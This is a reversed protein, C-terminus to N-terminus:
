TNLDEDEDGMDGKEPDVGVDINSDDSSLKIHIINMANRKVSVTQTGLDQVIGVSRTWVVSVKVQEQYDSDAYKWANEIDYLSFMRPETEMNATIGTENIFTNYSNSCTVKASGDTIGTLKLKIGLSVRKLELELVGDVTPTYNNVEGYFRDIEACYTGNGSTTSVVRGSVYDDFYTSYNFKNTLDSGSWQFPYTYSYRYSNDENSYRFYLKDKADKILTCKFRYKSGTKLNITAGDFTDFVGYAFGKGDRYVTIGYLDRSATAARTMPSDSASLDGKCALTVKVWQGEDTETATEDQSCAAMCLVAALIMIYKKAM